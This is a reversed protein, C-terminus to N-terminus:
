LNLFVISVIGILLGIIQVKTFIEKLIFFSVLYVVILSGAQIIPFILSIPLIGVLTMVFLNTIANCIGCIAALYWGKKITNGIKNRDRILAFILCIIFSVVMAYMMFEGKYLGEFRKQHSTQIISVAGNAIFTISIFIIWKVMRKKNEATKEEKKYNSLFLSVFLLVLGIYFFVSGKENQFIIGFLTPLILSYSIILSTISLSGNEFSKIQFLFILAYLIGFAIAYYLTQLHFDIHFKNYVFYFLFVVISLIAPFVLNNANLVRKSYQNSVINQIALAFSVAVLLLIEMNIMSYVMKYESVIYNMKENLDVFLILKKQIFFM